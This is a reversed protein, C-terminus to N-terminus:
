RCTRGPEAETARTLIGYREVGAEGVVVKGLCEVWAHAELGQAEVKAVGIHLTAPYGM